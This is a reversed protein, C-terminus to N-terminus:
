CLGNISNIILRVQMRGNCRQAKKSVNVLEYTDSQTILTWVLTTHCPVDFRDIDHAQSLIRHVEEDDGLVERESAAFLRDQFGRELGTPM